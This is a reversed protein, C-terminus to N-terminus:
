ELLIKIGTFIRLHNLRIRENFLTVKGNVYELNAQVAFIRSLRYETQASVMYSFGGVTQFGAGSNTRGEYVYTMLGLGAQPLLLFRNRKDLQFAYGYFLAVSSMDFRNSAMMNPIPVNPQRNGLIKISGYHNNKGLRMGAEFGWVWANFRSVNPQNEAPWWTTYSQVPVLQGGLLSFFYKRSRFQAEPQFLDENCDKLPRMKKMLAFATGERLTVLEIRNSFKLWNVSMQVYLTNGADIYIVKKVANKDATRTVVIDSALTYSGADLDFFAYSREHIICILSDNIFLPYRRRILEIEGNLDQERTFIVVIRGKGPPPELGVPRVQAHLLVPFLALLLLIAKKM